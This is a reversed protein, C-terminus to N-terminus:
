PKTPEGLNGIIIKGDKFSITENYSLERLPQILPLSKEYQGVILGITHLIVDKYGKPDNDYHEIHGEISTLHHRISEYGRLMDVVRVTSDNNEPM